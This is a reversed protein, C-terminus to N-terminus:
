STMRSITAVSINQKELNVLYNIIDYEVVDEVKINENNLYEIYKKIDTYYSSITNQSLRKKSKIYDMYEKLFEM